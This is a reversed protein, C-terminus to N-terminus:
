EPVAVVADLSITSDLAPLSEVSQRLIAPDYHANLYRRGQAEARLGLEPAQALISLQVAHELGTGLEKLTNDLREFGLRLDEDTSRFCLQASTLVVQPTNVKFFSTIPPAGDAITIVKAEVPEEPAQRLRALLDCNAYSDPSARLAQMVRTSAAPYRKRIESELGALDQSLSVMCRAALVDERSGGQERLRTELTDLSKNLEERLDLRFEPSPQRVGALYILGHPNVEEDAEVEVDFSVRTAPSSLAGVRIVTIAPIPIRWEGLLERVSASVRRVDGAGGVWATIRALRRKRLVKRLSKMSEEVQRSLLGTTEDPIRLYQLRPTQVKVAGPADPIVALMQPKEPEPPKPKQAPAPVCIWLAAVLCLAPWPSFRSSRLAPNCHLMSCICRVPPLGNLAITDFGTPWGM